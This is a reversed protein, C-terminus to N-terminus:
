CSLGDLGTVFQAEPGYPSKLYVHISRGYPAPVSYEDVEGYQSLWALFQSPTFRRVAVPIYETQSWLDILVFRRM